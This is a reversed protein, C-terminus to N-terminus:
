VLEKPLKILMQSTNSASPACDTIKTPIKAKADLALLFLQPLRMTVLIVLPTLPLIKNTTLQQTLNVAANPTNVM